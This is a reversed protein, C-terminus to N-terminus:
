KPKTADAEGAPSAAPVAAASKKYWQFVVGSKPLVWTNKYGAEHRGNSEEIYSNTGDGETTTMIEFAYVGLEDRLPGEREFTIESDWVPLECVCYTLDELPVPVGFEYSITVDQTIDINEPLPVVCHGHDDPTMSVANGNVRLNGISFARDAAGANINRVEAEPHVHYLEYGRYTTDVESQARKTNYDAEERATKLRRVWFKLQHTPIRKKYSYKVVLRLFESCNEIPELMHKVRYERCAAPQMAEFSTLVAPMFDKPGFGLIRDLKAQALDRAARAEVLKTHTERSDIVSYAMASIVGCVIGAVSQAVFAVSAPSFVAAFFGAVNNGALSLSYAIFLVGLCACLAFIVKRQREDFLVVRGDNDSGDTM